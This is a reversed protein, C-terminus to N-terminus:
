TNTERVTKKLSNKQTFSLVPELKLQPPPTVMEVKEYSLGFISLTISRKRLVIDLVTSGNEKPVLICIVEGSQKFSLM